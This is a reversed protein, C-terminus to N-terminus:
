RAGPTSEREAAQQQQQELEGCALTGLLTMLESTSHRDHDGLGAATASPCRTNLFYFGAQRLEALGCWGVGIEVAGLGNGGPSAVQPLQTM